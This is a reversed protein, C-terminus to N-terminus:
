VSEGIIGDVCETAVGVADDDAGVVGVAVGGDGVSGGEVLDAVAVDAFRSVSWGVVAVSVVGATVVIDVDDDVAVIM